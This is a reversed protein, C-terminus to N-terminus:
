FIFNLCPEQNKRVQSDITIQTLIFYFVNNLCELTTFFCASIFQRIPKREWSRFGFTVGRNSLHFGVNRHVQVLFQVGM